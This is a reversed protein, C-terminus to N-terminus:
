IVFTSPQWDNVSSTCFLVGAYLADNDNCLLACLGMLLAEKCFLYKGKTKLNVASFFIVFHCGSCKAKAPLGMLTRNKYKEIVGFWRPANLRDAM